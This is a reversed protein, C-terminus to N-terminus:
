PKGEVCARAAAELKAEYAIREEMEAEMARWVLIADQYFNGTTQVNVVHLTPPAPWKITCKAPVPKDLTQVDTAVVKATPACGALLAALAAVIITKV